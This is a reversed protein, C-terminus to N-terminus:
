IGGYKKKLTLVLGKINRISNDGSFMNDNPYYFENTEKVDFMYMNEAIAKEIEAQCDFWFNYKYHIDCLLDYGYRLQGNVLYIPRGNAHYECFDAFGAINPLYM